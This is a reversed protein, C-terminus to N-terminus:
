TNVPCYHTQGKTKFLPALEADLWDWDIRDALLVLANRPNLLHELRILFLDDHDAKKPKKPRM